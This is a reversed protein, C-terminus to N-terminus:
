GDARRVAKKQRPGHADPTRCATRPLTQMPQEVNGPAGATVPLLWRVPRHEARSRRAEIYAHDIEHQSYRRGFGTREVEPSAVNLPGVWVPITSRVRRAISAVDSVDPIWPTVTVAVPVGADALDHVMDLRDAPTPAGPELRAAASRDLTSVSVTVHGDGRLLLDIDRRAGVGKTVIRVPWGLQTLEDLVIRTIGLEGEVSPYADCLTGLGVRSQRHGTADLEHRLQERATEAGFRPRSPGQAGTICYVCRIDCALYPNVSLVSCAPIEEVLPARPAAVTTM